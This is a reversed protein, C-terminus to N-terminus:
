RQLLYGSSGSSHDAFVEVNRIIHIPDSHRSSLVLDDIDIVFDVINQLRDVFLANHSTEPQDSPLQLGLIRMGKYM